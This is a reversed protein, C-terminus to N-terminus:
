AATVEAALKGDVIAIEVLRHGADLVRLKDGQWRAELVVDALELRSVESGGLLLRVSTECVILWGADVTFVLLIDEDFDVLEPEEVDNAPLAVLRRASWWYLREADAGFSLPRWGPGTYRWTRGHDITVAVDMWRPAHSDDQVEFQVVRRGAVFTSVKRAPDTM